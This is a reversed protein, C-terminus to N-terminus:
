SYTLTWTITMADAAGKNVVAFVTRCWMVDQYLTLTGNAGSAATPFTITNADPVTAIVAGGNIGSDTAAAIGIARDVALGHANKTLTVVTGARTYSLAAAAATTGNFLGAETLAGTGTGAPFTCVFTDLTNSITTSTLATRSSGVEAGLAADAVAAATNNTGVAMHSPVATAAGKTRSAMACKGSTVVLNEYERLDILLGRFDFLEIKIRGNVTARDNIAGNM